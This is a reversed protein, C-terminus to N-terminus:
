RGDAARIDGDADELLTRLRAELAAIARETQEVFFPLERRAELRELHRQIRRLEYEAARRCGTSCYSPPRGVGVPKIPTRCKSCFKEAMATDWFRSSLFPAPIVTTAVSDWVKSVGPHSPASRLRAPGRQLGSYGELANNAEHGGGAGCPRLSQRLARRPANYGDPPAVPVYCSRDTRPIVPVRPVM